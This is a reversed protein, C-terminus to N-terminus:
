QHQDILISNGDPDVLTCYEPGQSTEDAERTLAIGSAKLSKQISRVDTPNFTLINGEFMGQFLGIIAKGNQLIAWDQPKGSPYDGFIQEFGLKRYFTVSTEIDKVALSVSFNGLDM